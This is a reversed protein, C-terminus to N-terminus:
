IYTHRDTQRVVVKFLRSTPLEYKCMRHIKWTYSDLEYIFTMPDLYCSRFLCSIETGAINVETASLEPELFSLPMLKAHLM